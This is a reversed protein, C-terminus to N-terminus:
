LVIQTALIIKHSDHKSENECFVYNMMIRACQGLIYWNLGATYERSNNNKVSKDSDFDDYRLLFELKKTLRYALTLNYGYGRKNSLGSGGNSGDAYQYEGLMWFKDKYYRVAASAVSFDTSNRRGSAFGGGTYLKGYKKEDLNALPKFDLWLNGEVGPIFQHYRVDSSLGAVEYDLWKYSGDIRVGTKRANSFNRASQSRMVFPITKASQGGEYGLQPRSTGFLVTHNPIRKTQIFADLIFNHSFDEYVGPTLDFLLNYSEKESRFKGGLGVNLLSTNYKFNSQYNITENFTTILQAHFGATKVIGRKFEFELQDHFMGQSSNLDYDKQIIGRLAEKTYPSIKEQAREEPELIVPKEFIDEQSIDEGDIAFVPNVAFVILCLLFVIKKM